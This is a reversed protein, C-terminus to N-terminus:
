KYNCLPDIDINRGVAVDGTLMIHRAAALAMQGRRGNGFLEAIRNLTIKYALQFRITQLTDPAFESMVAYTTADTNVM